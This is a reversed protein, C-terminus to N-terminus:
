TLLALIKVEVGGRRWPTTSLCPIVEDTSVLEVHGM